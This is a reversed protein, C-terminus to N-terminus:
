SRLCEFDSRGLPWACELPSSALKSNTGYCKRTAREVCKSTTNAGNLLRQASASVPGTLKMFPKGAAAEYVVCGYSWMDVAPSLLRRLTCLQANQLNFFEPLRRLATVYAQLRPQEVVKGHHGKLGLAQHQDSVSIQVEAM